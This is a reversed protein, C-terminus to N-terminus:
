SLLADRVLSLMKPQEKNRKSCNSEQLEMAKNIAAEIDEPEMAIVIRNEKGLVQVLEMQHDDIHEKYALKRPMVVPVKGSKIAHILSGAGAHLILLESKIIYKKFNELSLYKVWIVNDRRELVPTNGHQIYIPKPLKDSLSLVGEIMRNFPQTANGVSVFISM